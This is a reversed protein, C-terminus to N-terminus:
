LPRGGKGRNGLIKTFYPIEWLVWIRGQQDVGDPTHAYTDGDSCQRYEHGGSYGMTWM